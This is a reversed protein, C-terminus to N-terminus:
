ARPASRRDGERARRLRGGRSVGRPEDPDVKGVRRLLGGSVSRRAGASTRRAPARRRAAAGGALLSLVGSQRRTASRASSWRRARRSWWRRPRSTACAWAPRICGRRSTATSRCRSRGRARAHDAPRGESELAACLKVAGKARCAIDDCVHVVRRPRPTTALMAYFTAVGWADAPPVGLRECVYDLGGETIFGVRAQLAQLAPLLLHRLERTARGGFTRRTRTARAAARRRRGVIVDPAGLVQMSRPGSTRRPNPTRPPSYGDPTHALGGHCARCTRRAGRVGQVGGHGVESGVRRDDAPEHGRRRSLAADHVGHRRAAGHRHAGAGRRSAAVRHSACRKTTRSASGRPTRRRSTSCRAGTCRRITAPRRCAPTTRSSAAGRQSCCRISPTRCRWRAKTGCSAHVAGRPGRAAGQEWLRGHLFTRARSAIRRPLAVSHRRARRAARLEHRRCFGAGGRPVRGVSGRRDAHGLRPRPAERDRVIIWLEDRAGEPPESAKRCRQVRRESNTVTGEGECWTAAAPLVVHALEATRTM